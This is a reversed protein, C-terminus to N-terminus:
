LGTLSLRGTFGQLRPRGFDFGAFLRTSHPNTVCFVPRFLSIVPFERNQAIVVALSLHRLRRAHGEEVMRRFRKRVEELSEGADRWLYHTRTENRRQEQAHLRKHRVPKM